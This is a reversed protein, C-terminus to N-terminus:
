SVVVTGTMGPHITCEYEYTGPEDFTISVTDGSSLSEAFDMDGSTSTVNHPLDSESEWTVTTGAEVEITSPSFEMTVTVTADDGSAPDGNAPDTVGDDVPPPAADDDDDNGCAALFLALVAAIAFLRKSM